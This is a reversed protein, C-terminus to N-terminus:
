IKQECGFSEILEAMFDSLVCPISSSSAYQKKTWLLEFKRLKFSGRMKVPEILCKFIKEFCATIKTMTLESRLVDINGHSESAAYKHVFNNLFQQLQSKTCTSHSDIFDGAAVIFQEIPLDLRQAERSSVIYVLARIRNIAAFNYRGNEEVSAFMDRITDTSYYRSLSIVVPAVKDFVESSKVYMTGSELDERWTAAKRIDMKGALVDKYLALRDESMLDLLERVYENNVDANLSRAATMIEKMEALVHADAAFVGEDVVHVAYGYAKMGRMIVPLQQAYERYKREFMVIKYATDNLSYRGTDEDYEIFYNSQIISHVISNYKSGSTRARDAMNNCIQVLSHVDMLEEDSITFNIPKYKHLYRPNGSRDRKAVFLKIHLDRNRLRNSWQDIEAATFLDGFYIVFNYKDHIDVGVSLYSTCMLVDIDKITAAFNIDDMFLEGIESKKYYKIKAPADFRAHDIRLFYNVGAEITKAHSMGENTPYLVRRGDAVDTAMAKCMSYVSAEPTDVLHVQLEKSRGEERQVYIHTIDPFFVLEGSPTGSMLVIPVESNSIMQVVRAMIPRYESMFLLHSEDIFIYDFGAAAIEINSLHSYKDLTLALGGSVSLKPARTGYSYYWAPNKEVKSKITSTFPMVMMIKLGTAVLEKVMETKGLGPGAELLTIRGFTKKLTPILDSLYQSKKLTHEVYHASPKIINPNSLQEISAYLEQESTTTAQLDIKISFGHNTNLRNVAWIDIPKNHRAATVCDARLEKTPVTSACVQRMLQTGRELGYLKVLTNALRWRDTHKYHTRTTITTPVKGADTVTASPTSSVDEHDFWEWRSFVSKLDPHTIWDVEPHGLDEVNDYCIYIFDEFFRTSILPHPDYGIFAGQAPKFMALDMYKKLDEATLELSTMEDLCALYVFSYKHRFNALYLARKKDRDAGEPISIKTYVHLGAGSSSLAVGFFWNCKHLKDFIIAKLRLAVGTNKIDMDIVQFGNWLDFAAIGIPREGNDTSYIVPRSMKAIAKKSPDTLIHVFDSLSSPTGSRATIHSAITITCEAAHSLFLDRQSQSCALLDDHEYVDPNWTSRKWSETAPAHLVRYAQLSKELSVQETSM